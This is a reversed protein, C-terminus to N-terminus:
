EKEGIEMEEEVTIVGQCVDCECPCLRYAEGYYDCSCDANWFLPTCDELLRMRIEM